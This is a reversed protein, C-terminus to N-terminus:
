YKSLLYKSWNLSGQGKCVSRLQSSDINTPWHKSDNALAFSVNVLIQSCWLLIGRQIYQLIENPPWQRGTKPIPQPGLRYQYSCITSDSSHPIKINHGSSTGCLESPKPSSNLATAPMGCHKSEILDTMMEVLSSQNQICRFLSLNAQSLCFLQIDWSQHFFNPFLIFFNLTLLRRPTLPFPNSTIKSRYLDTWRSGTSAPSSSRRASCPWPHTRHSSNPYEYYLVLCPPEILSDPHESKSVLLPSSCLYALILLQRM